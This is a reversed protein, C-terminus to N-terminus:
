MKLLAVDYGPVTVSGQYQRGTLLDTCSSGQPVSLQAPQGSHNLVFTLSAEGEAAKLPVVELSSSSWPSTPVGAAHLIRRLIAEYCPRSCLAGVFHAEGAGVTRVTLAPTGAYFQEQYRGVARAGRLEMVSCFPGAPLSEGSGELVVSNTRGPSLIDHEVVEVGLLEALHGPPPDPAATNEPTKYGAPATVLAWHGERVWAALQHAMQESSIFPMPVALVKYGTLSGAPQVFDVPVGMRRLVEHLMQLHAFYDLRVGFRATQLAWASDYDLLLAVQAAPGRGEWLHAQAKLEAIAAKIEEYRRRPTGDADLLGYWHMEQGFPCTRWPFYAILEAGRAAAQYSWLRLEGPRPQGSRGSILTAGAQQELVWFPKQSISRTLDLNLAAADPCGGEGPYNDLSSVDEVGALAFQNIHSMAVVGPRNTTVIARGAAYERIIERQEALFGRYTASVFRKYDLALSPHPDAPTRRPVPIEHWDAISQSWFITGWKMNLRDITGYRRKLWERFAQACDECYCTGTGDCGMENDVQWAAVHPHAAFRKALETVIRRAYKQYAPSNLCVHRRSGPYWRRGDADQPTLNPHRQFLWNPPAATPTCLIVELGQEGLVGIARDLWDLEFRERKPELRSWAFEGVRVVDMGTQRMLQADVPWREEPWHEPYYAVGIKM